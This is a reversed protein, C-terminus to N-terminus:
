KFYDTRSTTLFAYAQQAMEGDEDSHLCWVHIATSEAHICGAGRRNALPDLEVGVFHLERCVQERILASNEGIGGTFIIGDLGQLDVMMAGIERAVRHVYVEVAERSEPTESAVLTRMDGSTESIGRLGSERYLLQSVHEVSMQKRQLLHLILGPDISGCRTAMPLGDLPTLGMTTAVSKGHHVACLSSGGGLHAIVLRRNVLEPDRVGLQRLISQFSLGHFGYRRLGHRSLWRPIAFQSNTTPITHHFATDFCAVQAVGPFRNKTFGIADLCSPQHLPAWSSFSELRELMTQDIVMPGHYVGGGHVVRHVIGQIRIPYTKLREFVVNLVQSHLSEASVLSIKLPQPEPSADSDLENNWCLLHDQADFHGTIWREPKGRLRFVAFKLSTSGINLTILVDHM